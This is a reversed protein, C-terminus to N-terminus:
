RVCLRPSLAKLKIRDVNYDAIASITTTVRKPDSRLAARLLEAVARWDPCSTALAAEYALQAQLARPQCYAMHQAEGSLGGQGDTSPGYAAQPNEPFARRYSLGSGVSSPIVQAPENLPM